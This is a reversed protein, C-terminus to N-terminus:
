VLPVRLYRCIGSLECFSGLGTEWKSIAQRTINMKEALDDQSMNLREREEKIRNGLVM